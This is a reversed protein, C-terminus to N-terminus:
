LPLALDTMNKGVFVLFRDKLYPDPYKHFIYRGGVYQMRVPCTDNSFEMIGEIRFIDKQQADVLSIFGDRSINKTVNQMFVSLQDCIDYQSNSEGNWNGSCTESEQYKLLNVGYILMPDFECNHMSIMPANANFERILQVLHQMRIENLLDKKNLLLVDAAKVQAQAITDLELHKEAMLCDIITTLSDFKILDDLESVSALLETPDEHRLNELIIFDSQYLHIIENVTKRLDGTLCCKMYTEEIETIVYDHNIQKPIIGNLKPDTQILVVFRNVEAQCAVFHELINARERGAFGTLLILRPIDVMGITGTKTKQKNSM